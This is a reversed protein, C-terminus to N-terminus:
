IPIMTNGSIIGVLISDDGSSSSDDGSISSDDGSISSDDGSRSSDDGRISSDDGSISSDDGSISSDDCSISSDHSIFGNCVCQAYGDWQNGCNSCTILEDEQKNEYNGHKMDLLTKACDIINRDHTINIHNSLSEITDFTQLSEFICEPELCWITSGYKMSGSSLLNTQNM